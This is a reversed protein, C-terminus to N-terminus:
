LNKKLTSLIGFYLIEYNELEVHMKKKYIATFIRLLSNRQVGEIRSVIDHM